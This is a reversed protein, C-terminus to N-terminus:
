KSCRKQPVTIGFRANVRKQKEKRGSELRIWSDAQATDQNERLLIVRAGVLAGVGPGYSGYGSKRGYGMRIDPPGPLMGIYDNVHDHGSYISTVGAERLSHTLGSNRLPCCVDERKTGSVEVEEWVHIFEPPPIHVFALSPVKPLPRQSPHSPNSRCQPSNPSACQIKPRSGRDLSFIEQLAEVDRSTVCGWGQSTNGCGMRGSDLMWVRAAATQNGGCSGIHSADATLYRTGSGRERGRETGAGEPKVVPCVDLFYNVRDETAGFLPPYWTLSWPSSERDLRAIQLHNLNAEGDHNGPTMAHPIRAAVVPAVVNSWRAQYWLPDRRNWKWGSVMDGSFVVLDVDGETQLVTTMAKQTAADERVGEGFHLDTFQVIKFTGDQRFRLPSRQCSEVGARGRVIDVGEIICPRLHATPSFAHQLM